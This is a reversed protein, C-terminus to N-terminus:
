RQCFASNIASCSYIHRLKPLPLNGHCMLGLPGLEWSDLAQLNAPRFLLRSIDKMITAVAQWGCAEARCCIALGSTNCSWSAYSALDFLMSNLARPAQLLMKQVAQM